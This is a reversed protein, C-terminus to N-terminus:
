GANLTIVRTEAAAAMESDISSVLRSIDAITDRKLQEFEKPYQSAWVTAQDFAIQLETVKGVLDNILAENQTFEIALMAMSKYKMALKILSLLVQRPINAIPAIRPGIEEPYLTRVLLVARLAAGSDDKIKLISNTLFAMANPVSKYKTVEEVSTYMKFTEIAIAELCKITADLGEEALEAIERAKVEKTVVM